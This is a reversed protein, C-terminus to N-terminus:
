VLLDQIPLHSSSQIFKQKKEFVVASIRWKTKKQAHQAQALFNGVCASGASFFQRRLSLTRQFFCPIFKRVCQAQALFLDVCASGASVIQRRLSLTRQFDLFKIIIKFGLFFGSLTFNKYYGELLMCILEFSFM